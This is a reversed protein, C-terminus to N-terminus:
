DPSSTDDLLEIRKEELLQLYEDVSMGTAVRWSAAQEVALFCRKEWLTTARNRLARDDESLDGYDKEHVAAVAAM